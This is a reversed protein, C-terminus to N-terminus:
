LPLRTRFPTKHPIKSIQSSIVIAGMPGTADMPGVAGMLGPSLQGSVLSVHCTDSSMHCNDGFTWLVGESPGESLQWKDDSTFWTL